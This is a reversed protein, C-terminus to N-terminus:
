WNGAIPLRFDLSFDKDEIVVGPPAQRRKFQSIRILHAIKKVYDDKYESTSLKITDDITKELIINNQLFRVTSKISMNKDILCRLTADLIPYPGLVNEDVQGESLEASPKKYIINSRLIYGQRKGLLFDSHEQININNRWEAMEPITSKLIGKLVNFGGMLDGGITSYGVSLESRNGTALVMANTKKSIDMLIQSRFRAQINESATKDKQIGVSELFNDYEDYTQMLKGIPVEIEKCFLRNALDSGDSKSEDSTFGSPMSILLVNDAGLADVAITATMASDLGGSNGIVVKSFGNKKIFDRLGLVCAYYVNTNYNKKHNNPILRLKNQINDTDITVTNKVFQIAPKNIPAEHSVVFSGGDFVLDDQGGIQNVYMFPVNYRLAQELVLKERISQKGLTFHSGNPSIIFQAGEEILHRVVDGHWIDECIPFGIKYGRFNLPKPMGGASFTRVEDYVLENPLHHKYTVQVSDEDILLAGNYPKGPGQLPAPVLLAPGSENSVISIIKDLAIRVRDLFHPNTVLDGLPYGSIFCESFVILDFDKYQKRYDLILQLNSDIDGVIPNDQIGIIKM